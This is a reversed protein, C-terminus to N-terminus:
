DQVEHFEDCEIHLAQINEASPKAKLIKILM